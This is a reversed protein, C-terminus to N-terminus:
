GSGTELWKRNKGNETMTLSRQREIRSAHGELANLTVNSYSHRSAVNSDFM